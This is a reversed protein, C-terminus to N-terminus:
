NALCDSPEHNNASRLSMTSQVSVRRDLGQGAGVRPTAARAEHIVDLAFSVSDCCTTSRNLQSFELFYAPRCECEPRHRGQRHPSIAALGGSTRRLIAKVVQAAEAIAGLQPQPASQSRGGRFVVPDAYSARCVWYSALDPGRGPPARGPRGARGRGPRLLARAPRGGARAAARRAPAAVLLPAAPGFSGVPPAASAPQPPRSAQAPGAAPGRRGSDDRM